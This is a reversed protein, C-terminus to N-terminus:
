GYMEELDVSSRQGIKDKHAKLFEEAATRGASKLDSLVSPVPVLKSAVSLERMLADDAIMHVFVEKMAGQEVRGEGLLKQVFNIARLERLLSTNFGIENIRNLIDRADKPIEM